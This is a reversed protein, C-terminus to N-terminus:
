TEAQGAPAAPLLLAPTSHALPAHPLVPDSSPEVFQIPDGRNRAVGSRGEGVSIRSVAAFRSDAMVEFVRLLGYLFERGAVIACRDFRNLGGSAGVENVVSRLQPFDPLSTCESLDLLVDLGRGSPWATALEGFHEHVEALTVHGSGITRILGAAPDISFTIPM